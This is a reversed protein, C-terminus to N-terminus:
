SGPAAPLSFVIATGVRVDPDVFVRGGYYEVIRRVISLGMGSGDPHAGLLRKGPLFVEERASAPIGPGNDYVVLSEFFTDPVSNAGDASAENAQPPNPEQCRKRSVFIRPERADCGHKAANRILNTLVQKARAANCWVAPLDPDVTVQIGRQELLERQEYLAEQVVRSLETRSPAMEIGGTRALMVLDDLFRRSERLCAEVHAFQEAFQQALTEALPTAAEPTGAPQLAKIPEIPEPPYRDAAHPAPPVGAAHAEHPIASDKLRQLSHDLLMFYATMDHSLARVLEDTAQDQAGDAFGGAPSDPPVAFRSHPGRVTAERPASQETTTPM